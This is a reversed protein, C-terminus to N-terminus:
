GEARMLFHADEMLWRKGLGERLGLLLLLLLLRAILRWCGPLRVFHLGKRHVLAHRALPQGFPSVSRYAALSVPLSLM